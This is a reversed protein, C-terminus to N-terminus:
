LFVILWSWIRREINRLCYWSNLQWRKTDVLLYADGLSYVMRTIGEMAECTNRISKVVGLIFRYSASM